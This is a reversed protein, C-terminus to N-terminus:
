GGLVFCICVCVFVIFYIYVCVRVLDGLLDFQKVDARAIEELAAAVEAETVGVVSTTAEQIQAQGAPQQSAAPAPAATPEGPGAGAAAHGNGNGNTTTSSSSPPITAAVPVAGGRAQILTALRGELRAREQSHQGLDHLALWISIGNALTRHPTPHHPLYIDDM